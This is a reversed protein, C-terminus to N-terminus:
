VATRWCVWTRIEHRLLRLSSARTLAKSRCQLMTNSFTFSIHVSIGRVVSPLRPRGTFLSRKILLINRRPSLTMRTNNLQLIQKTKTLDCSARPFACPCLRHFCSALLYAYPLKRRLVLHVNRYSVALREVICSYSSQSLEVCRALFTSM